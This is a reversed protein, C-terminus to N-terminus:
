KQEDQLSRKIWRYSPNKFGRRFATFLLPILWLQLQEQPLGGYM